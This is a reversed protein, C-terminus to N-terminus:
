FINKQSGKKIWPSNLFPNNLRWTNISKRAMRRYNIELKIGNYNLILCIIEIKKLSTLTYKIDLIHDISTSLRHSSSFFTYYAPTPHFLRYIEITYLQNITSNLEVIDKSSRDIELLSTYFKGLIIFFEDIEEWHEVLNQRVHKSPRNNPAYVNFITINEQFMSRKIGVYHGKTDKVKGKRFAERESILTVVGAKM